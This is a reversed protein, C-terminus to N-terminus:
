QGKPNGKSRKPPKRYLSDEPTLQCDKAMHKEGRGFPHPCSACVHRYRCTGPLACAGQNWSICVNQSAPRPQTPQKLTPSSVSQSVPASVPTNFPALACSHSHHDVDFCHCCSPPGSASGPRAMYALVLSTDPDAWVRSPDSAAQSRFVYDYTRWGEGGYRTADRVLNQMYALLDRTRGPHAENVIAIFTCFACVWSQINPVERQRNGSVNAVSTPLSELREM